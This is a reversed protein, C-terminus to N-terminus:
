VITWFHDKDTQFVRRSIMARQKISQTARCPLSEGHELRVNGTNIEDASQTHAFNILGIVPAARALGTCRLLRGKRFLDIRAFVHEVRSRTKTWRRNSRKQVATLPRNRQANHVDPPDTSPRQLTAGHGSLPVGHGCVAVPRAPQHGATAAAGALRADGCADGRLGSHLRARRRCRDLTPRFMTWPM